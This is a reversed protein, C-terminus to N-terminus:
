RSAVQISRRPALADSDLARRLAAGDSAVIQVAVPLEAPTMGDLFRGESLCVDPLLFHREPDCGRLVRAVDEGTMLGTVAINGGFYQNDVVAFEVNPYTSALLPELVRAGYAGTLITVGAPSPAM